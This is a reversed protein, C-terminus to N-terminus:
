FEQLGMEGYRFGQAGNAGDFSCFVGLGNVMHVQMAGAMGCDDALM